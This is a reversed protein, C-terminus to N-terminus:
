LLKYKLEIKGLALIEHGPPSTMIHVDVQTLVTVNEFYRSFELLQM